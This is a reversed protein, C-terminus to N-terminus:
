SRYLARLNLSPAEDLISSASDLLEIIKDREDKSALSPPVIYIANPEGALSRPAAAKDTVFERARTSFPKVKGRPRFLLRSSNRTDLMSLLSKAPKEIVQSEDKIINAEDKYAYTQRYPLLMEEKEAESLLNPLADIEAGRSDVLSGANRGKRGRATAALLAPAYVGMSPLKQKFLPSRAAAEEPGVVNREGL